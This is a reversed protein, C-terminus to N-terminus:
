FLIQLVQEPFHFSNQAVKIRAVKSLCGVQESSPPGTGVNAQNVNMKKSVYSQFIEGFVPEASPSYREPKRIGHSFHSSYGSIGM